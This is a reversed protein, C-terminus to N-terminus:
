GSLSLKPIHRSGSGVPLRTVGIAVVGLVVGEGGEHLDVQGSPHEVIGLRLGQAPLHRGVRPEALDRLEPPARHGGGAVHREQGQTGVPEIERGDTRVEEPVAELMEEIHAKRKQAPFLAVNWATVAMALLKSYQEESNAVQQYPAIFEELVESMKVGDQADMIAVKQNRFQRRVRQRLTKAAKQKRQRRKQRRKRSAKM